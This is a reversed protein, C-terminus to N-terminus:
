PYTVTLDIYTKNHVQQIRIDVDHKFTKNLNPEVEKGLLTDIKFKHYHEIRGEALVKCPVKKTTTMKVFTTIKEKLNEKISKAPLSFAHSLPSGFLTVLNSPASILVLRKATLVTFGLINM